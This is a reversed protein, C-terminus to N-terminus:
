RRFWWRVAGALVVAVVTSVAWTSIAPLFALTWARGSVKVNEPDGREYEVQVRDGVTLGGPYKLGSTPSHYRGDDDPFRVLTKSGTSLVEATATARDRSIQWDGIAATVVLSASVVCALLYAALIVQNM